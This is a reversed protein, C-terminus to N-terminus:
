NNEGDNKKTLEGKKEKFIQYDPLEEVKRVGLHALLEASPRYYGGRKAGVKEEREILGRTTLTRLIFHTNVGRIWDIDTKIIPGAYLIVALTELAAKSIERSFEDKAIEAIVDKAEPRTGLAVDNGVWVLVVGRDILNQELDKLAGIVEGEEHKSLRSLTSISVPEARFFLIAELLAALNM